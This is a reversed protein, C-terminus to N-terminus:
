GGAEGRRKVGGDHEVTLTITVTESYAEGDYSKLRVMHDGETLGTTDLLYTWTTTGVVETWSGGGVSIEVKQITDDGDTDSATGQISVTGSVITGNAPSTIAATPPHTPTLIELLMTAPDSRVGLDDQVLLSILHSGSTLACLPKPYRFCLFPVDLMKSPSKSFAAISQRYMGLYQGTEVTASAREPPNSVARNSRYAVIILLSPTTRRAPYRRSASPSFVLRSRVVPVVYM